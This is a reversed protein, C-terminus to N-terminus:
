ACQPNSRIHNGAPRRRVPARPLFETHCSLLWGLALNLLGAASRAWVFLSVTPQKCYDSAQKVLYQEDLEGANVESYVDRFTDGPKETLYDLM